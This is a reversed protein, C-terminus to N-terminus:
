PRWSSLPISSRTESNFILYFVEKLSLLSSQHQYYERHTTDLSGLVEFHTRAEDLHSKRSNSNYSAHTLLLRALTLMTWKSLFSAFSFPTLWKIIGRRYLHASLSNWDSNRHEFGLLGVRCLPLQPVSPQGFGASSSKQM